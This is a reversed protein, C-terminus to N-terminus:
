DDSQHTRISVHNGNGQIQSASNSCNSDSCDNIQTNIQTNHSNGGNNRHSGKNANADDARALIASTILVAALAAVFVVATLKTYM